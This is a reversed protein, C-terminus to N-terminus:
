EIDFRKRLERHLCAQIVWNANEMVGLQENVDIWVDDNIVLVLTKRVAALVDLDIASSDSLDVHPRISYNIPQQVVSSSTM